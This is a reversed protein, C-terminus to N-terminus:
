LRILRYRGAVAGTLPLSKAAFEAMRNIGRGGEEDFKLDGVVSM